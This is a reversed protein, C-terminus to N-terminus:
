PTGKYVHALDEELEIPGIEDEVGVEPVALEPCVGVYVVCPLLDAEVVIAVRLVACVKAISRTCSAAPTQLHLCTRRRIFVCIGFFGRALVFHPKILHEHATHHRVFRNCVIGSSNM